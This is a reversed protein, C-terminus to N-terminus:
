TDAVPKGPQDHHVHGQTVPQDHHVHGQTVRRWHGGKMVFYAVIAGICCCCLIPIVIAAVTAVLTIGLITLEEETTSEDNTKNTCDRSVYDEYEYCKNEERCCFQDGECDHLSNCSQRAARQLPDAGTLGLVCCLLCLCLLKYSGGSM